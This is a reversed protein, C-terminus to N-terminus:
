RAVGINMTMVPRRIPWKYAVFYGAGDIIHDLGTSKDPEGNKDYAQKELAEVLHPCKDENVFYGRVGDKCIKANYALVRDRIRPNAANVCVMYGAGKLLQIDSESANQSKRNDGSADPYVILPHKVDGQRYRKDLEVIMSPTDLVDTIEDVAHPVGERMGHVAAAMKGVNFDMGIHLPEGPQITERSRNKERDFEPYVSGSTLNVFEGNLYAELLQATYSDRLSPIYDPSLNRANSYTSARFLRYGKEVAKPDKKWTEYTFRFGEPTTAVGVTNRAGDPKVQRNRAIIKIWAARAAATNLTDLEDVIADAHKYGVISAPNDMSRCIIKGAGAIHIERDSKVIRHRIEMADLLEAFGEYAVRKVLDYTPLYYGTACGPYRCKLALARSQGAFSKGSGFGGVFAPFRETANVFAFQPRSLEIRTPVNWSISSLRRRTPCRSAM